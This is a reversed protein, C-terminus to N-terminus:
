VLRVGLGILILQWGIFAAPAWFAAKEREWWSLFAHIAAVVVAGIALLIWAATV